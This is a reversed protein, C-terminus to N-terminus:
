QDSEVNRAEETREKVIYDPRQKVTEFIKAMYEGVIGIAVLNLSGFVVICLILSTWGEVLDRGFFVHALFSYILYILFPLSARTLLSLVFAVRLPVNSFSTIGDFAFRAMKLFDFKTRGAVRALRNYEVVTSSFGIWGVMGRLYKQKNGIRLLADLARRSVLRFDGCDLPANVDALRNLLRYFWHATWRKFRTEGSRSKRLAFVINNGEEWKLIM